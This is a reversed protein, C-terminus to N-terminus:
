SVPRADFVTCACLADYSARDSWPISGLKTRKAALMFQYGTWGDDATLWGAMVMSVILATTRMVALNAPSATATRVAVGDDSVLGWGNAFALTICAAEGEDAGPASAWRARLARYLKAHTPLMVEHRTYWPLRPVRSLGPLERLVDAVLHARGAFNLVAFPLLGGAELNRLSCTDFTWDGVRPDYYEVGAV